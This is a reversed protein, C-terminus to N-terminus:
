STQLALRMHAEDVYEGDARMARPEIGWAEFGRSEYLRRAAENGNEISLHLSELGLSRAHEIARDILRGGVGSGRTDPLVYMGWVLARHRIKTRDSRFVGVSGVLAEEEFAGLIVHDEDRRELIEAFGDSGREREEALTVLFANPAHELAHLRLAYAAELDDKRLRRIEM